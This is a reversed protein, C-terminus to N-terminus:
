RKRLYEIFYALPGQPTAARVEVIGTERFDRLRCVGYQDDTVEPM